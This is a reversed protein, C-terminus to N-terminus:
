RDAEMLTSEDELEEIDAEVKGKTTSPHLGYKRLMKYFDARYRGAFQAARSINGGTLQLVNKLYTREFEEKAETLPKLPTDPSVGVSPLLDPTIMDQRTMVVAKEIANELERVNGPWPNVMLRHLATPTFGRVDKNARQNSIKLFHQALLPIDDRRDRLPPIFLPVVSIRYYLDNRFSGNKVAEGLDKNTAAIIRVDIKTSLESGVERVEREQVARLL